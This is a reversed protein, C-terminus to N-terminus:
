YVGFLKAGLVVTLMVSLALTAVASNKGQEKSVTHFMDMWLHRIGAIFHHLYAWILALVVLKLLWGPVPGLGVSFATSFMDYSVQSSVSTDFMWIVLPMLLFMLAGSVRHLISVIGAAPLRYRIIETVHINRYVPREKAIESM